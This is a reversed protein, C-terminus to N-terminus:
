FRLALTPTLVGVNDFLMPNAEGEAHQQQKPEDFFHEFM